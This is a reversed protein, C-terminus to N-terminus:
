TFIAFFCWLPCFFSSFSLYFSVPVGGLMVSRPGVLFGSGDHLLVDPLIHTCLRVPCIEGAIPAFCEKSPRNRLTESFYLPQSDVCPPKAASPKLKCRCLRKQLHGIFVSLFPTFPAFPNKRLICRLLCHACGHWAAVCSRLCGNYETINRKRDSAPERAFAPTGCALAGAVPALPHQDSRAVTRYDLAWLREIRTVPGVAFVLGRIRRFLRLLPAPNAAM